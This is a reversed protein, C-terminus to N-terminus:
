VPQKLSLFSQSCSSQSKLPDQKTSITTIPPKSQHPLTNVHFQYLGRDLKGQLLTEGTARDKVFCTLPHFKFFVHNDRAFQSVSLLNKTINPVHFLHKLLLKRSPHNQATLFSSGIHSIPLGAGNGIVLQNAGQYEVGINLNALDNTVHNTAGSAPYWNSDSIGENATLSATLASSNQARSGQENSSNSTQSQGTFSQDFRYYCWQVTHGLKGCLQCQPRNGQNWGGRGQGGRGGRGGRGSNSPFSKQQQPKKQTHQMALNSSPVSSDSNISTSHDIRSEFSILLLWVDALTYPEARTTIPVIVADYEHGLSSLLHLVQDEESLHHGASSLLDTCNKMKTLYERMTLNGKKLTQLQLKYQMIKAKSQSAFNREPTSWIEQSSNLGVMNVLLDESISALLWAALLQDQRQWVIFHPNLVNPQGETGPLTDVPRPITGHLFGDIGYGRASILVQLRWLLYNSDTLRITLAQNSPSIIQIAANLALNNLHHLNPHPLHQPQPPIPIDPNEIEPLQPDQNTAM